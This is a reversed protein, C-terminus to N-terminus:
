IAQCQDQYVILLLNFAPALNIDILMAKNFVPEM